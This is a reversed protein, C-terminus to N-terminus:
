TLRSRAPTSGSWMRAIVNVRLAAASIRWRMTSRSFSALRVDCSSARFQRSRRSRSPSMAMEVISANQRDSRRSNGSSASTSGPNSRASSVSTGRSMSSASSRASRIERARARRRRRPARTRAAPRAAAARPAPRAARDADRPAARAAGTEASLAARNSPPARTDPPRRDASPGRQRAHRATEIREQVVAREDGANAISARPCEPRHTRTPRRGPAVRRAFGRPAPPKADQDVPQAPIEQRLLALRALRAERAGAKVRVVAHRRRRPLAMALTRRIAGAIASATRANRRSRLTTIDRPTQRMKATASLSRGASARPARAARNRRRARARPRAASASPRTRACGSGARPASGGRAPPRTEPCSGRATPAPRAAPASSPRLGRRM